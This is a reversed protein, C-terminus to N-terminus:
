SADDNEKEDDEYCPCEDCSPISWGDIESQDSYICTKNSCM